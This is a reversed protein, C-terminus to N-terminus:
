KIEDSELDTTNGSPIVFNIQTGTAEEETKRPLVYPLIKTIFNLREMPTLTRLDKQIAEETIFGKLMNRLTETTHNPTGKKRGGTKKRGVKFAM